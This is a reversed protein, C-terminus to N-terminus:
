CGMRRMRWAEQGAAQSLGFAPPGGSFTFFPPGKM